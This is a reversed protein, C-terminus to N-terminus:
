GKCAKKKALAIEADSRRLYIPSISAPNVSDGRAFLISAIQAISLASSKAKDTEVFAASPLLSEISERLTISGPGTFHVAENQSAVTETLKALPMATPPMIEEPVQGQSIFRYMGTYVEGRKADIVPCLLQGNDPVNWAMGMITNIGVAEIGLGYTFGMATAIGIRLGTFSGPGTSIGVGEIDSIKIGADTALEGIFGTLLECHSTRSDKHRAYVNDDTILAASLRDTATDIGLIIM